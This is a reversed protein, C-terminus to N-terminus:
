AKEGLMAEEQISKKRRFDVLENLYEIAKNIVQSNYDAGRTAVNRLNYLTEELTMERASKFGKCIHKEHKSKWYGCSNPWDHCDVCKILGVKNNM